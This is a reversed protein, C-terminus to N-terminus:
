DSPTASEEALGEALQRGLLRLQRAQAAVGPHRDALQALLTEELMEVELGRESHPVVVEVELQHPV